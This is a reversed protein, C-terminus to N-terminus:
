DSSQIPNNLWLVAIKTSGRLGVSVVNLYLVPNDNLKMAYVEGEAYPTEALEFTYNPFTEQYYELVQNRRQSPVVEVTFIESKRQPESDNLETGSEGCNDFFLQAYEEFLGCNISTQQAARATQGIAGAASAELADRQALFDRLQQLQEPTLGQFSEPVAVATQEPNPTAASMPTASAIPEPTLTAEPTPEPTPTAVPEPVPIPVPQPVPVPVVAAPTPIPLPSPVIAEPTPTPSPTPSPLPNQLLADLSALDITEEQEAPEEEAVSESTSPIPIVLVLSHLALSAILMPRYLFKWPSFTEERPHSSINQMPLESFNTGNLFVTLYLIPRVM